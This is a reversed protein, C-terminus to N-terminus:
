VNFFPLRCPLRPGRRIPLVPCLQLATALIGKSNGRSQQPPEWLTVNGRTSTFFGGGHAAVSESRLGLFVAGLVLLIQRLVGKVLQAVYALMFNAAFQSVCLALDM